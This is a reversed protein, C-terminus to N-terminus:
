VVFRQLAHLYAEAREQHFMHGVEAFITHTAQPLQSLARAVDDADMAGGFPREGALLHVPCCVRALLGDPEYDELLRGEIAADFIAPDLQHLQLARERVAEMGAVELMTQTENVPSHAVYDVLEELTGGQAHHQPLHQRLAVFYQYFGTGQFRELQTLYLPPDELFLGRVFDATEGALWVAVVGGMSHGAVFAPEGVVTQLFAAVDRGYDSLCYAAGARGSLGHGRLDLAYVHAWEALTLMFPRFSTHSGSTGHLFVLSPGQGVAEAYHIRIGNLDVTHQQIM